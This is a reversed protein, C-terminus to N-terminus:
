RTRIINRRFITRKISVETYDVKVVVLGSYAYKPFGLSRPTFSTYLPM